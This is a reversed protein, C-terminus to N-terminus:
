NPMSTESLDSLKEYTDHYIPPEVKDSTCYIM